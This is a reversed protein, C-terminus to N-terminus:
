LKSNGKAARLAVLAAVFVLPLESEQQCANFM